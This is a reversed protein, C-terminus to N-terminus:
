PGLTYVGGVLNWTGFICLKMTGFVLSRFFYWSDRGRGRGLTREPPHERTSAGRRYSRPNRRGGVRGELALVEGGPVGQPGHGDVGIM